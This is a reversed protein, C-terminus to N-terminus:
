TYYLWSGNFPYIFSGFLLAWLSANQALCSNRGQTIGTRDLPTPQSSTDRYHGEWMVQPMRWYMSRARVTSSTGCYTHSGTIEWKLFDWSQDGWWNVKSVWKTDICETFFGALRELLQSTLCLPSAMATKAIEMAIKWIEGSFVFIIGYIKM